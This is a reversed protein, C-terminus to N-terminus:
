GSCKPMRRSAKPLVNIKSYFCYRMAASNPYWPVQGIAACADIEIKWCRALRMADATAVEFGNRRYIRSWEELTYRSRMDEWDEDAETGGLTMEACLTSHFVGRHCVRYLEGIAKDLDRPPVYCLSTDYVFDFYNDPFPISRVDALLNRSRWEVPTRAHIYASNEIGWAEVREKAFAALTLGSASGCDLLRYPPSQQWVERILDVTYKECFYDSWAEEYPREGDYYDHYDPELVHAAKRM